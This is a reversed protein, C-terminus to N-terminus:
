KYYDDQRRGAARCLCLSFLIILFQAAGLGVLAGLVLVQNNKVSNVFKNYCGKNFYSNQRNPGTVCGNDAPVLDRRPGQLICCSEPVIRGIREQRSAEQFKRASGFDTYNNVGCCQQSSMLLDWSVSVADRPAETTYTSLSSKLLNRTHEDAEGKYLVTLVIAAIQLGFMLTIFLAYATLLIRSEQLAGCYGLFAIVFILSGVAILLYGAQELVGPQSYEALLNQAKSGVESNLVADLQTMQVFSAKDAAVWVGVTLVLGGVVFFVFNALCLLYKALSACCHGMKRARLCSDASSSRLWSGGAGVRRGAAEGRGM